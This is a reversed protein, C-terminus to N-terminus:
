DIGTEETNLFHEETYYDKGKKEIEILEGTDASFTIMIDHDSNELHMCARWYDEKIPTMDGAYLVYIDKVEPMEPVYTKLLIKAQEKADQATLQGEKPTYFSPDTEGYQADLIQLIETESMERAPYLWVGKDKYTTYYLVEDQESEGLKQEPRRGECFYEDALAVRILFAERSTLSRNSDIGYEDSITYKYSCYEQLIYEGSKEGFTIALQLLEEETLQRSDIPLFAFAGTGYLEEELSLITFDADAPDANVIAVEEFPKYTQLFNDYEEIFQLEEKSYERTPIASFDIKDNTMAAKDTDSNCAIFSIISTICVISVAFLKFLSKKM